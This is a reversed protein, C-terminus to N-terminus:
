IKQKKIIFPFKLVLKTLIYPVRFGKSNKIEQIVEKAKDLKKYKILKRVESLKKREIFMNLSIKIDERLDLANLAEQRDIFYWRPIEKINTLISAQNDYVTTIDDIFVITHFLALRCWLDHDEGHNISEEFFTDKLIEKKLCVSNTHIVELQNLTFDFYNDIKLIGHEFHLSEFPNRKKTLQKHNTVFFNIEPYETIKQSLVALHNSLYYDDSDLFCIYNGKAQKIGINRAHSVGLHETELYKIRPDILDRIFSQVDDKSGDDIIILEFDQESQHLVSQIARRITKLHKFYPMIVSFRM